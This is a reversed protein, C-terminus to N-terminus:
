EYANLHSWCFSVTEAVPRAGVNLENLDNMAYSMAEGGAFARVMTVPMDTQRDASM